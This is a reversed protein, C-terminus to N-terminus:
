SLLHDAFDARSKRHNDLAQWDAQPDEVRLQAVRLVQEITKVLTENSQRYCGELVWLTEYLVLHNSFGPNEQSCQKEILQTATKSQAPDDQVM